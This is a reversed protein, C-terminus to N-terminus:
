RSHRRPQTGTFIATHEAHLVTVRYFRMVTSFAEFGFQCCVQPQVLMSGLCDNSKSNWLKAAEGLVHQGDFHRDNM